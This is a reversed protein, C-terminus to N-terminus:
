NKKELETKMEDVIEGGDGAGILVLVEPTNETLNKMEESM